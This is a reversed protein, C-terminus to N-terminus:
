GNSLIPDEMCCGLRLNLRLSKSWVGAEAIIVNLIKEDITVMLIAPM